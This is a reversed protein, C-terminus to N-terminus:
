IILGEGYIDEKHFRDLYWARINVFTEKGIILEAMARGIAPSHMFGHGSFGCAHYYGDIGDVNGLIPNGDPTMDYYGEQIRLIQTESLRPLIELGLEVSKETFEYDSFTDAEERLYAMYIHGEQLQKAGWGKDLAVLCPNLFHEEIRQTYLLRKKSPVVPLDIGVSAAVGASDCGAANVVFECKYDHVRGKIGSVRNGQLLIAKAEDYYIRVDMDKATEALTNTYGYSDELFGDEACFSAGVMGLVNIDPVLEKIEEPGVIRSPIGLRNQLAVNKRYVTLTDQEYAIFLYGSQIFRLPIAPRLEEDINEFFGVSERALLCGLESSWQQRIGGPCIGTAKSAIFEKELIIVDRMGLKALHYAISCGICGAGIIIGTAKHTMIM